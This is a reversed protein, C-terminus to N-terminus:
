VIIAITKGKHSSKPNKLEHSWKVKTGSNLAMQCKIKNKGKKQLKKLFLLHWIASYESMGEVTAELNCLSLIIGYTIM